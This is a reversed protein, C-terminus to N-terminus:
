QKSNEGKPLDLATAPDILQYEDYASLKCPSPSLAPSSSPSRKHNPYTEPQPIPEDDSHDDVEGEADYVLNRVIEAYAHFGAHEFVDIM